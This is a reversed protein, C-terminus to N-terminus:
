VLAAAEAAAGPPVVGTRKMQDLWRRILDLGTLCQEILISPIAASKARAGSLREELSHLAESMAEFEVIGASGKLTHFARFAGDLRAKDFPNSELALLDDTAQDVLEDAEILFQELLEDMRPEALPEPM